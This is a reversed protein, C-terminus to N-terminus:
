QSNGASPAGANASSPRDAPRSGRGARMGAAGAPSRPHLANASTPTARAASLKPAGHSECSSWFLATLVQLVSAAAANRDSSVADDSLGSLAVGFSSAPLM